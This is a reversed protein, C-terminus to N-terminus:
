ATSMVRGPAGDVPMSRRWRALALVAAASIAVVEIVDDGLSLVDIGQSAGVVDFVVAIALLGPVCLWPWAAAQENPTIDRTGWWLLALSVLGLVAWTVLDGIDKARLPGVDAGDRMTDITRGVTEHVRLADDVLLMVGIAALAMPFRVRDRRAALVLVVVAFGLQLYGFVEPVTRDFRVDLRGGDFGDIGGSAVSVVAPLVLVFDVALLAIAARRVDRDAKLEGLLSDWVGSSQWM